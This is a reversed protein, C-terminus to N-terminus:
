KDPNDDLACVCIFVMEVFVDAFVVDMFLMLVVSAVCAVVIAVFVIDMLVRLVFTDAFVVAIFVMLVVSADCAVLIDVSFV